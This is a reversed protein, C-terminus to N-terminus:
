EGFGPNLDLISAINRIHPIPRGRVQYVAFHHNKSPDMINGVFSVVKVIEVHRSGRAIQKQFVRDVDLLVVSVLVDLYGVVM